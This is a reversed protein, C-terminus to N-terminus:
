SEYISVATDLIEQRRIWNDGEQIAEKIVLDVPRNLLEELQHKIRALTLLGQPADPAFSILLDIDSNERFDERLISGFLALEAIKWQRCVETLQEESIALRNISIM